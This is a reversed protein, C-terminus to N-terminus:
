NISNASTSKTPRSFWTGYRGVSREYGLRKALTRIKRETLGLDIALDERSIGPDATVAKIFAKDEAEKVVVAEVFQFDGDEDVYSKVSGDASQYSAAVRFPTPPDFDRPKLCRVELEMPGAGDNYLSRDRRIGYVSDAMAGLDGTGRLVNELTMPMDASSKTAHHLALIGVCGLARLNAIDDVLKKNAAADNEDGSENFRPLTDLVILPKMKKVAEALIPSDLMLAPGETITRCLFLEPDNTIGFKRCRAKFARASSEPIMYIVPIIEDPQFKGLFPQGSTLSKVLSLAFLTKGQGALGGILNVGEPLFGNILMRVDGEELQDFSRFYDGFSEPKVAEPVAQRQQSSGIIVETNTYPKKAMEEALHECMERWDAGPNECRKECVELLCTELGEKGLGMKTRLYGAIRLLERYHSGYPILEGDPSPDVPKRVTQLKELIETPLSAVPAQDIPEYTSGSPHLSRPGVVYGGTSKVEGVHKGGFHMAIQPATGQFYLHQGRGTRITFTKPLGINPPPDGADFDLVVLGSKGLDIGINADPSNTWWEHVKNQDNSSDQSWHPCLELNPTKKGPELPFIYWGRKVCNLATELLNFTSM